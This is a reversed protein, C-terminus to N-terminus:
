ALTAQALTAALADADLMGGGYPHCPVGGGSLGAPSLPGLLAGPTPPASSLLGPVPGCSVAPYTAPLTSPSSLCGAPVLGCLQQLHLAAPGSTAALSGPPWTAGGALNLANNLHATAHLLDLPSLGGGMGLGALGLTGQAQPMVGAAATMRAMNAAVAAATAAPMIGPGLHPQQQPQLEQQQAKWQQYREKLQLMTRPISCNDAAASAIGFNTIADEGYLLYSVRDYVRAAQLEQTYRHLVLLLLLLLL